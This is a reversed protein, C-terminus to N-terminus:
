QSSSFTYVQGASDALAQFEFDQMTWDENKFPWSWKGAMCQNLQFNLINGGYNQQLNLRFLPGDGQLMNAAVITSGSSSQSNGYTFLMATSADGSAFTYVGTSPVLSYAGTAESSAAVRTLQVGTAAYFVGMDEIGGSAHTVTVTYPGSPAPVTHPENLYVENSIGTALSQNAFLSNFAAAQIRAFSAKGKITQSGRAIAVPTQYQGVLPKLAFDFDLEVDKVIGFVAPTPTVLSTNVAILTGSGFSTQMGTTM